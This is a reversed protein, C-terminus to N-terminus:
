SPYIRIYDINSFSVREKHKDYDTMLWSKLTNRTPPNYSPNLAKVFAIFHSNDVLSFPLSCGVILQKLKENVNNEHAITLKPIGPQKDRFLDQFAKTTSQQQELHMKHRTNYHQLLTSTQNSDKYETRCHNCRYKKAQTDLTFHQYASSRKRSDPRQTTGNLLPDSIASVSSPSPSPPVNDDMDSENERRFAERDAEERDDERTQATLNTRRLM